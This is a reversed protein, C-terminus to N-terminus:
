QIGDYDASNAPNFSKDARAFQRLDTLIWILSCALGLGFIPLKYFIKIKYKLIVNLICTCTCTCVISGGYDPGTGITDM